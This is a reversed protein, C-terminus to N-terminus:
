EDKRKTLHMVAKVLKELILAALYVITLYAVAKNPDASVSAWVTQVTPLSIKVAERGPEPLKLYTSILNM